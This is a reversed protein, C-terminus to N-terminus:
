ATSGRLRAVESRAHVAAPSDGRGTGAIAGALDIQADLLYGARTAAQKGETKRIKKLHDKKKGRPGQILALEDETITGDAVDAALLPAMWDHERRDAFRWMVVIGVISLVVNLAILLPSALAADLCGHTVTALLYFGLAVSLRRGFSRNRAVLFYAFGAGAIATYLAHSVGGTVTRTLFVKFGDLIPDAGFNKQIGNTIYQYNEFLQFGLGVFAGLLIGDYISRFAPRFLLALIVLGAYKSSEETLPATFAPAWTTAFDVSVWKSWLSLLATNAPAAMMWTAVLGGWLFGVVALKSPEREYRDRRTLFWAFPLGFILVYVLAILLAAATVETALISRVYIFGGNIVLWAWLWFAPNHPQFLHFRAAWGYVPADASTDVSTM